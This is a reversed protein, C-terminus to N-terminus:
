EHNANNIQQELTKINDILTKVSKMNKFKDSLQDISIKAFQINILAEEFRNQETLYKAKKYYWFEKRNFQLIFYNYADIAKDVQKSAKLYDLKKLRLSLANEGLKDLGGDIIEIAKIYNNSASLILESYEIFDGPRPDTVKSIFFSYSNVAKKFQKLEGLIQGHLKYIKVDVNDKELFLLSAKLAKKFKKWHFYNEAMRYNLLKDNFGLKKAKLYDTTAKNYEEHQQYLFGREFYLKAKNPNSKIENTKKDIRISLNGHANVFLTSAICVIAFLLLNQKTIM